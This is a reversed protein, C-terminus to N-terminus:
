HHIQSVISMFGWKDTHGVKLVHAEDERECFDDRTEPHIEPVYMYMYMQFNVGREKWQKLIHRFEFQAM